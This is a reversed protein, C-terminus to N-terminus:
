ALEVVVRIEDRAQGEGPLTLTLTGADAPPSPQFSIQGLSMLDNGSSSHGVQRYSTGLDDSLTWDTHSALLRSASDGAASCVGALRLDLWGSWIELSLLVLRLGEGVEVQRGIPVVRVLEPPQVASRLHLPPAVAPRHTRMAGAVAGREGPPEEGPARQALLELVRVRLRSLEAGRKALVQAAVGEGERILGLLLHETGIYNHGLQLAEHLSLELVKKARPTFPIHGGEPEITGKGIIEEVDSRVGELSIDFSALAAAGVSESQDDGVLGLLLHETGIYNHNLRRAEELARVVVRRARDTFREFM